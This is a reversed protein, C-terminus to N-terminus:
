DTLRQAEYPFYMGLVNEERYNRGQLRKVPEGATNSIVAENVKHFSNLINEM